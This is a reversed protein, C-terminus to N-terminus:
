EKKDEIIEYVAEAIERRHAAFIPGVNPTREIVAFIVMVVQEISTRGGPGSGARRLEMDALETFARLVGAFNKESIPNQGEKLKLIEVLRLYTEERITQIATLIPTVAKVMAEDNKKAIQRQYEECRGKWNLKADRKWRYLVTQSFAPYEERMRRITEKQTCGEIMLLLYAREKAEPSYRPM